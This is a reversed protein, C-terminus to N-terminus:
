NGEELEWLRNEIEEISKVGLNRIHKIKGTAIEEKLQEITNINYRKLCWYSRHSLHLDEVLEIKDHDVYEVFAIYVIENFLSETSYTVKSVNHTKRFEFLAEEFLSEYSGKFIKLKM